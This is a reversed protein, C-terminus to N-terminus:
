AAQGDADEKSSLDPQLPLATEQKARKAKEEAIARLLRELVDGRVGARLRTEDAKLQAHIATGAATVQARLLNGDGADTPKRLIAELKKLGLRTVRELDPALTGEGLTAPEVAQAPAPMAPLDGTPPRWYGRMTEGNSRLVKPGHWGLSRMVQKARRCARDTMPVCLHKTLLESTAIRYEGRVLDGTVRCLVQHWDTPVTTM